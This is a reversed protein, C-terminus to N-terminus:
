RKRVSDKGYLKKKRLLPEGSIQSQLQPNYHKVFAIWLGKGM